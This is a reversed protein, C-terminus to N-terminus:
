RRRRNKARGLSKHALREMRKFSGNPRAMTDAWCKNKRCAFLTFADGTTTDRIKVAGDGCRRVIAVYDKVDDADDYARTRRKHPM